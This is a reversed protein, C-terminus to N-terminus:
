EIKNNQWGSYIVLPIFFIIFLNILLLNLHAYLKSPTVTTPFDGLLRALSCYLNGGVPLKFVLCHCHKSTKFLTCLQTSVTQQNSKTFCIKFPHTQLVHSCFSSSFYKM